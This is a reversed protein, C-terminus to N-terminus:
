RFVRPCQRCIFCSEDADTDFVGVVFYWQGTNPLTSLACGWSTDDADNRGYFRFGDDAGSGVQLSFGVNGGDSAETHIMKEDNGISDLKIWGMATFSGTYGSSIPREWQIYDDDGDFDYAGGVKGDVSTDIGGSLSGDNGGILDKANSGDLSWYSVLGSPATPCNASMTSTEFGCRQSDEADNSIEYDASGGIPSNYYTYGNQAYFCEDTSDGDIDQCEIPLLLDSDTEGTIERKYGYGADYWALVGTSFVSFVLMFAAFAALQKKSNM